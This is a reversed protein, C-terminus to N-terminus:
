GFLARIEIGWGLHENLHAAPHKSAIKIAEELNAAEFMFVGGIQEKTEIYPGDTISLKGNKQKLVTSADELGGDVILHASKQLDDMYPACAPGLAEMETSSLTAMKQPDGYAFCLYKM